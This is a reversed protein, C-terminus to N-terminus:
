RSFCAIGQVGKMMLEGLFRGMRVSSGAAPAPFSAYAKSPLVSGWSHNTSRLAFSLEQLHLLFLHKVLM